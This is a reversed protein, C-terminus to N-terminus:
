KELDRDVEEALADIRVWNEDDIPRGVRPRERLRSVSMLHDFEVAPESATGEIPAAAVPEPTCALPIHG